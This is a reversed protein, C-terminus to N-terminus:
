TRRRRWAVGALGALLLAASTPEPVPALAYTIAPTAQFNAGYILGQLQLNTISAQGSPDYLGVSFRGDLFTTIGSLAFSIQGTPKYFFGPLVDDNFAGTGNLGDYVVWHISAPDGSSTYDAKIQIASYPPAPSFGTFDFNLILPQSTDSPLQVAQAPLGLALALAAIATKISM